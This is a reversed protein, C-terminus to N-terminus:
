TYFPLNFDDGTPAFPRPNYNLLQRAESDDFVLDILQRKVMASNLGSAFGTKALANVLPVLIWEPMRALRAPKQLADFISNVMEAYSLTSGGALVLSRPLEAEHLLATVAVTALDDAHVPQRLGSAKGNVPIFGFRRILDALRSINNDLGCGYILTPRLLVLKLENSDAFTQLSSETELMEGILQKEDPDTSERKSIVSSSSFVVAHRFQRGELLFKLSLDLPGASLLYQCDTCIQLAEEPHLWQVEEHAPQHEPRGTRSVAVIQFGAALLRPIAFAGIQGSAGTLLVRPTSVTEVASIAM